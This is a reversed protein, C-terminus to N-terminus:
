LGVIELEFPECKLDSYLAKLAKVSTRLGAQEGIIATSYGVAICGELDSKWGKFEDGMFNASHIEIDTRDPVELVHYCPGHKPSPLMKVQYIGAPVCSFSQKNDRWPLEGTVLRFGSDSMWTGFTGEDTSSGRIIKIKRM